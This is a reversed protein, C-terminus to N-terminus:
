AKKACSFCRRSIERAMPSRDADRRECARRAGARAALLVDHDDAQLRVSCRRYRCRQSHPHDLGGRVPERVVIIILLAAFLGVSGLVIFADRWSYAAAISAGFAVGLAAGIPPGLNYIGLATGRRGPPFYDSIIAYSPPVGGAEGFGVTMRAAVLQPYNAALGCAM